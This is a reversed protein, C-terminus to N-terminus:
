IGVGEFQEKSLEKLNSIAPAYILNEHGSGIQFLSLGNFFAKIKNLDDTKLQFSMLGGYGTMQKRSLKYQPFSELGPHYIKAIKPHNELFHAVALASKQHQDMRIKLTRLSRLLM